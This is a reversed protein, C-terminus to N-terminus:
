DTMIPSSQQLAEFVRGVTGCKWKFEYINPACPHLASYSLKISRARSCAVLSITFIETRTQPKMKSKRLEGTELCNKPLIVTTVNKSTEIEQFLSRGRANGLEVFVADLPRRDPDRKLAGGPRDGAQVSFAAVGYLAGALNAVGQAALLARAVDHRPDLSVLTAVDMSVLQDGEQEALGGGDSRQLRRAGSDGMSM